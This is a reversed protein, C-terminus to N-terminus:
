AATYQDYASLAEAAYVMSPGGGMQVAVGIADVVEDREAGADLAARAHFAICGDCRVTIAIALAILEKTRRTLAADSYTAKGLNAFAGTLEPKAKGVEKMKDRLEDAIQAYDKAM